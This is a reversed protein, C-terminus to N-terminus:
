RIKVKAPESSHINVIGNVVLSAKCTQTLAKALIREAQHELHSNVLTDQPTKHIHISHM